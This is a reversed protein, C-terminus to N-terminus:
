REEKDTANNEGKLMKQIMVETELITKMQRLEQNVKEARLTIDKCIEEIFDVEAEIYTLVGDTM